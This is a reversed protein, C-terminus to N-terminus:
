YIYMYLYTQSECPLHIEKLISYIQFGLLKKKKQTLIYLGTQYEQAQSPELSRRNEAEQTVLVISVHWCVQSGLLQKSPSHILM